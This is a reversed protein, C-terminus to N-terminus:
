QDSGELMCSGQSDRAQEQFLLLCHLSGKTSLQGHVSSLSDATTVPCHILPQSKAHNRQFPMDLRIIQLRAHIDQSYRPKMPEWTTKERMKRM